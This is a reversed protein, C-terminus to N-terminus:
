KKAKFVDIRDCLDAWYKDREAQAEELTKRLTLLEAEAKEAREQWHKRAVDQDFARVHEDKLREAAEARERLAKTADDIREQVWAALAQTQPHSTAVDLTELVGYIETEVPLRAEQPAASM